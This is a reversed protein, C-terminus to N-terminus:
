ARRHANEAQRQAFFDEKAARVNDDNLWAELDASSVASRHLTEESQYGNNALQHSSASRHCPSSAAGGMPKFNRASSTSENWSKGDAVTSM